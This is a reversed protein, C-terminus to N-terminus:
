GNKEAEGAGAGGVFRRPAVRLAVLLLTPIAMTLLMDRTGEGTQMGWGPWREVLVDAVENLFDAVLVLVWPLWSTLPRKLILAALLVGAAGALVHLADPSFAVSREILMKTEYWFRMDNM